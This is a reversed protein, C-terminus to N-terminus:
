GRNVGAGNTAASDTAPNGNRRTRYIRNVIERVLSDPMPSRASNAWDILTAVADDQPIGCKRMQRALLAARGEPCPGDAPVNAFLRAIFDAVGEGVPPIIATAGCASEGQLLREVLQRVSPLFQCGSEAYLRQLIEAIPATRRPQGRSPSPTLNM